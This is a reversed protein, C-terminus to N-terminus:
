QLLPFDASLDPHLVQFVREVQALDRLQHEGLDRLAVGEPLDDRVLQQVTQTLLVHGDHGIALLRALRNLPAALYDGNQPTAEGAHLAMRVRMSGLTEPWSETRSTQQAALAAALADPAAAFASQTGDGITKYLVGGHGGVCSRLLALHRDLAAAM